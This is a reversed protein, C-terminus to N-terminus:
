GLMTKCGKYLFVEHNVYGLSGYNVPFPVSSYMRVIEGFFQSYIHLKVEKELVGEM